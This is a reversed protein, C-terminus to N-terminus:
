LFFTARDIIAGAAAGYVPKKIGIIGSIVFVAIIIDIM